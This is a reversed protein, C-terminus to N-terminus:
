SKSVSTFSTSNKPEGQVTILIKLPVMNEKEYRFRENKGKNFTYYKIKNLEHM